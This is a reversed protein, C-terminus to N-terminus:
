GQCLVDFKNPTTGHSVIFYGTVNFSRGLGLSDPLLGAPVQGVAVAPMGDEPVRVRDEGFRRLSRHDGVGVSDLAEVENVRHGGHDEAVAGSGHEVSRPPLHLQTQGVVRGVAVLHFERFQQALADGRKVLYAEGVRAGLCGQVGNAGSAREGAAALKGLHFTTIVPGVICHQDAQPDVRGAASGVIM